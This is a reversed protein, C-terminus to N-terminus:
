FLSKTIGGDVTLMVGNVYSAAPSVLFVAVNAFERPSALRGLPISKSINTIEQEITTGNKQAKNSLLDDVRGTQTWGPLISNFRIGFEGLEISLSKILAVTAARVTNSLILNDLPNKVSFSTIALVCPAKSVKLFPIANKILYLHSLFSLDLADRWQESSLNIFTGPPPGGSNTILIDMGGFNEVTRYVIEKCTDENTVDGVFGNVNESNEPTQLGILAADVNKKSRSNIMVKSGEAVLTKAIAFGLGKTSGAVLATKSSLGLDM